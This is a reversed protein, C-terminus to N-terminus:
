KKRTDWLASISFRGPAVVAMLLLGGVIAIDKVFNIFLTLFHNEDAKWFQHFSFSTALAFIILMACAPRIWLGLLLLLAGVLQWVEAAAVLTRSHAFHDSSFDAVTWTWFYLKAFFSAIFRLSMLLRAVLKALDIWVSGPEANRLESAM